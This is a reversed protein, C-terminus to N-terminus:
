KYKWKEKVLKLVFSPLDKAPIEINGDDSLKGLKSSGGPQFRFFDVLESDVKKKMGQFGFEAARNLGCSNQCGSIKISSIIDEIIPIREKHPIKELYKDLEVSVANATSPADNIGIKCVKAGVCSKILGSIKEGSYKEFSAAAKIHEAEDFPGCYIDQDQSIRLFEGHHRKVSSVIKAFEDRTLNGGKIFLRHLRLDKKNEQILTKDFSPIDESRETYEIFTKKFFTEGRDILVFRLRARWRDDRRGHDHYFRIAAASIKLIDELKAFDFIKIGAHSERGMGGGAFVEFGKENGVTKAIFGLDNFKAMAFDEDCCSFAIKFKRPLSFAKDIDMLFNSSFRACPVVDFSSKKDYASHPCATINRFTDAGGGYFPFGIRLFDELVAAAKQVQVNHLQIDQRTTLHISDLDHKELISVFRECDEISIEGGPVRVRLMLNGNRQEYIGLPATAKKLDASSIKGAKFDSCAEELVHYKKRIKEATEKKM